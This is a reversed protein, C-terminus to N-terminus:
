LHKWKKVIRRAICKLTDEAVMVLLGDMLRQLPPSHRRQQLCSELYDKKKENDETQLCEEALKNQHYLTRTNVVRMENISEMGRKWLDWILLDGKHELNDPAVPPNKQTSGM